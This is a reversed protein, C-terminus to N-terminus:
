RVPMRTSRTEAQNSRGSLTLWLGDDCQLIKQKGLKRIDYGRWLHRLCWFLTLAVISFPGDDNVSLLRERTALRAVLSDSLQPPPSTGSQGIM